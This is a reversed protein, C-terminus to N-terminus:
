STIRVRISLNCLPLKGATNKVKRVVISNPLDITNPKKWTPCRQMKKKKKWIKLLPGTGFFVAVESIKNDDIHIKKKQKKINKVASKWSRGM